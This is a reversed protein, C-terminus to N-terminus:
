SFPWLKIFTLTMYLNSYLSFAVAEHFPEKVPLHLFSLNNFDRIDWSWKQDTELSVRPHLDLLLASFDVQEPRQKEFASVPVQWRFREM